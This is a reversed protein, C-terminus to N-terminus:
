EIFILPKIGNVGFHETLIMETTAPQSITGANKFKSSNVQMSSPIYIHSLFGPLKGIILDM